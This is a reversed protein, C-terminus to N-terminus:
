RDIVHKESTTLNTPVDTSAPKAQDKHKEARDILTKIRPIATEQILDVGEDLGRLVRTIREQHEGVESLPGHLQAKEESGKALWRRGLFWITVPIALAAAVLAYLAMRLMGLVEGSMLSEEQPDTVAQEVIAEVGTPADAKAPLGSSGGYVGFSIM